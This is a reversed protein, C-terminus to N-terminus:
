VLTWRAELWRGRGADDHGPAPRFEARARIPPGPFADLRANIIPAIEDHRARDAPLAPHTEITATGAYFADEWRLWIAWDEVALALTEDDVLRLEFLDQDDNDDLFLSDYTHPRGGVLAIGGRPGDYFDTMTYVREFESV